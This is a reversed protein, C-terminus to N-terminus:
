GANIQVRIFADRAESRMKACSNNYAVLTSDISERSVEGKEFLMTLQRMAQHEGASASIKLHKLARDMNGFDGEIVGLNNRANENGAMAAAEYHFKAKKFYGGKDYISGLQYHAKGYGLEAARAYMEMSKTHDQQFSNLGHHYCNGLLYISAADNAEVRKLLEAVNDELTKSARDSNCFPCKFNGSQRCSHICGNCISKGCCTYYNDMAMDILRQNANAFDDIPVSSVTAPQLSVCCIMKVPM